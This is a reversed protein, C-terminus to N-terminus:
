YIMVVLGTFASPFKEVMVEGMPESNIVLIDRMYIWNCPTDWTNLHALLFRLSQIFGM